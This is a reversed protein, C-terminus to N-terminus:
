SLHKLGNITSTNNSHRASFRAREKQARSLVRVEVGKRSSAGLALADALEAVRAEGVNDRHRNANSRLEQKIYLLSM